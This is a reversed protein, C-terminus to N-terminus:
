CRCCAHPTPETPSPCRYTSAATAISCSNAWKSDRMRESAKRLIDGHRQVLGAEAAEPQRMSAQLVNKLANVSAYLRLAFYGSDAVGSDLADALSVNGAVNAIASIGLLGPVLVLVLVLVLLAAASHALRPGNSAPRPSRLTHRLMWGSLGIALGTQALLLLRYIRTEVVVAALEGERGRTAALRRAPTAARQL